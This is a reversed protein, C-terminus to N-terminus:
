KVLKGQADYTTGDKQLYLVGDILLKRVNDDNSGGTIDEVSTAVKEPVLRLAFRQNFTGKDLTITYDSMLLNTSTGQEYDILEVIMGETGQPMAFTYSGAATIVVGLPLVTEEKPIANGAMEHNDVISYINAGANIIKTLDLSMDFGKTGKDNRLQVYTKDLTSGAQQLELRLMVKKDAQEDTKAALKNLSGGTNVVSTWTIDGYYQVMFSHMAHFTVDNPTVAAYADGPHWYQYLFPIDDQKSDFGPTAFSPVGILHWNHHNWATNNNEMQDLTRKVTQGGKLMAPNIVSNSPFYLSLKSHGFEGSGHSKFLQDQLIQSYNLCLVYGVNQKLVHSKKTIYKWNTQALGSQARQAGDYEEMIWYKGYEGLGFVDSIKVDFPFSIWYFMKEYKSVNNDLLKDELFTMVAYAPKTYQDEGTNPINPTATISADNNAFTLQKPPDNHERMIMVSTALNINGNITGALECITIFRDNKFDYLLRVPYSGQASGGILQDTTSETGMFYQYKGNMRAKVKADSPVQANLDIQYFHDGIEDFYAKEDSIDGIENGEVILYENNKFDTNAIYARTLRNTVIDWGFRVTADAPLNPAGDVNKVFLDDGYEDDTFRNNNIMLEKCLFMAHDNAITFKVVPHKGATATPTGDEYIDVYRIFYHSFDSNKKAYESPTMVNNPHTFNNYQGDANTTRIYYKGTYKETKDLELKVNGNEQTIYFNWVGCGYDKSADAKEAKIADIGKDVVVQVTNKRGPMRINSTNDTQLPGFVMHREIDVWTTGDWQQLIIEPNNLATGTLNGNNDKSVKNYIHLSVIDTKNGSSVKKIRDGENFEYTRTIETKSAVEQEIYILRYDENETELKTWGDIWGETSSYVGNLIFCNNRTAPIAQPTTSIRTFKGENNTGEYYFTVDSYKDGAITATYLKDKVQHLQITDVITPSTALYRVCIFYEDKNAWDNRLYPSSLDLYVVQEETRVFGPFVQPVNKVGNTMGPNIIYTGDKQLGGGTEIARYGKYEYGCLPKATSEIVTLKANYPVFITTDKNYLSTAVYYDGESNFLEERAYKVQYQGGLTHYLIVKHCQKPAFHASIASHDTITFTYTKSTSIRQNNQYWGIFDYGETQHPDPTATLTVQTGYNIVASTSSTVTTTNGGNAITVTNNDHPYEVFDSYETNYNMVAVVLQVDNRAFRAHVTRSGEARYTYTPSSSDLAGSGNYWGVFRYGDNPTATLTNMSGQYMDTISLKSSGIDKTITGDNYSITATGGTTSNQYQGGIETQVIFNQQFPKHFRAVITYAANATYSVEAGKKNMWDIPEGATNYWGLFEYGDAASATITMTTNGALVNDSWEGTTTVRAQECGANTSTIRPYEITVSGGSTGKADFVDTEANYTYAYVKQQFIKAFRATVSEDNSGPNTMNWPNTTVPYGLNNWFGVFICGSKPTATITLTKTPYIDTVPHQNADDITETYTTSNTKTYSFTLTGGQNSDTWDNKDYISTESKNEFIQMRFKKKSGFIAHIIVDENPAAYTYTLSTSLENWDKDYWGLFKCHSAPTATLTVTATYAAQISTSSESSITSSTSTTNSVNNLKYSSITVSGGGSSTVTQTHNLSEWSNYTTKSPAEEATSGGPILDTNGPIFLNYGSLMDARVATYDKGSRLSGFDHAKRSSWALDPTLDNVTVHPWRKWLYPDELGATAAVQGKVSTSVKTTQNSIFAYQTYAIGSEVDSASPKALKCYWLKTNPINALNHTYAYIDKSRLFTPLTWNPNNVFYIHADNELYYGYYYGKYDKYIGSGGAWYGERIAVLNRDGLESVSILEDDWIGYNYSTSLWWKSNPICDQLSDKKALSAKCFYARYFAFKSDTGLTAPIFRSVEAKNTIGTTTNPLIGETSNSKTHGHFNQKGGSTKEVIFYCRPSSRRVWAIDNNRDLGTFSYGGDICVTSPRFYITKTTATVANQKKNLTTDNKSQGSVQGVFCVFALLLFLKQFFSQYTQKRTTMHQTNDNNNTSQSQTTLQKRRQRIWIIAIMAAAFLFLPATDGMPLPESPTDAWGPIGVDDNPDSSGGSGNGPNLDAYPHDSSFPKYITGQHIGNINVTAPEKITQNIGFPSTSRFTPTAPADSAYAPACFFLLLLLGLAWHPINISSKHSLNKM